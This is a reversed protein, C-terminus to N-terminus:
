LSKAAGHLLDSPSMSFASRFATSFQSMNSFGCALAVQTVSVDPRSPRELLQRARELRQIKLYQWPTCGEDRFLHHLHGLSIRCAMAVETLTLDSDDLRSRIIRKARSLHAARVTRAGSMADSCGNLALLVLEAILRSASEFETDSMLESDKQFEQLAHLALHGLGTHTDQPRLCRGEGDVLRQDVFGRPLVFSITDNDGLKTHYITESSVLLVFTAPQCVQTRRLQALELKGSVPAYVIYQDRSDAAIEPM